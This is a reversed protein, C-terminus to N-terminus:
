INRLGARVQRYLLTTFGDHATLLSRAKLETHGTIKALALALAEEPSGCESLWEKAAASPHRNPPQPQNRNTAILRNCSSNTQPTLLSPRFCSSLFVSDCM